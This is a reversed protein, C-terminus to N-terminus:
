KSPITGVTVRKLQDIHLSDNLADRVQDYTVAAVTEQFKDVLSIHKDKMLSNHITSSIAAANDWRVVQSGILIQKQVEIEEDSIGNKWENLVKETESIGKSLNVPAFTATIEFTSAGFHERQNAYIGYTLGMKDRVIKMLRGSFGNGLVGIALKTALTPKEIIHAWKVTCSSKGAIFKDIQEASGHNKMSVNYQIPTYKKPETMFKKCETIVKDSPSLVSLKMIGNKLLKDHESKIVDHTLSVLATRLDSSTYEYNCSGENYLAQSLLISAERNVDNGSGALEAAYKSKLYQFTDKNLSPTQIESKLVNVMKSIVKPDTSPVSAVMNLGYPSSHHSRDIGNNQLFSRVNSEDFFKKRICVGRSMLEALMHRSMLENPTLSSDNSVLSVRIYSKSANYKTYVSTDSTISSDAFKLSQTQPAVLSEIEPAQKYEEVAYQGVTEQQELTEGPTFWAVTSRETVFTNKVVREIDEPTVTDLVDFRNYVDFPDGRAIAENIEMAMSRTSSMAEEWQFKMSRKVQDLQEKTPKPYHSLLNMVAKEAIDMSKNSPNNTTVWVNFVYPDRMREWSPMIDHVKGSKKLNEISSDVGSSMLASLVELVIADRHLGNVSKFAFGLLSTNSPRQVHIRRQGNQEPEYTYMEPPKEGSPVDEFAEVVMDIVKAPDFNGVFTYTANNPKYFTDHFQRLAEVPVNEIDTRHGITSHHYPHAQFATAMLHKHLIQFNNNEGREFENRVVSMESKLSEETLLPELMRDAERVICDELHETKIVEFYNTRDTYTTANMLAGEEELKWMGDKGHYKKSGKFQLHELVHVAGSLGLGENRSGVHYTVNATVVDLGERPVLLVRLGNKLTYEYIDKKAKGPTIDTM